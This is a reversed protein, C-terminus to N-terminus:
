KAYLHCRVLHDPGVAVSPPVVQDCLDAIFEPCRPHFPCGKLRSYPDPVMGKIMQLRKKRDSNVISEDLHPISALLGRTYPHLP